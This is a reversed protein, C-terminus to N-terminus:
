KRVIKFSQNNAKVIIVGSPHQGLLLSLVGNEDAEQRALMLGDIDYLSVISNPAIGQVYLANGAIHYSVPQEQISEVGSSGSDLYVKAVNTVLMEIRLKTTSLVLTTGICKIVPQTSLSYEANTGDTQEVVVCPENKQAKLNALFAVHLLLLLLINRHM